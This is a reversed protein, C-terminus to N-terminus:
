KRLFLPKTQTKVTAHLYLRERFLNRMKMLSASVSDMARLTSADYEVGNQYINHFLKHLTTFDEELSQTHELFDHSLEQWILQSYYWAEKIKYPVYNGWMELSFVEPMVLPNRFEEVMRRNRDLGKNIRSSAINLTSLLENMREYFDSDQSAWFVDGIDTGNISMAIRTRTQSTLILYQFVVGSLEVKSHQIEVADKEAVPIMDASIINVSDNLM